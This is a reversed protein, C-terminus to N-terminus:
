PVDKPIGARRIAHGLVAVFVLACRALNVVSNMRRGCKAHDVNGNYRENRVIRGAANGLLSSLGGVLSLFSDANLHTRAAGFLKYSAATHLGSIASFIIMVWMTAFQRSTIDALLSSSAAGGRGTGIVAPMATPIVRGETVSATVPLLGRGAEDRQEDDSVECEVYTEATECDAPTVVKPPVQLLAGVVGVLLYLSGLTRLLQPWRAYVAAPFAGGIPNLGLPKVLSVDCTRRSCFAVVAVIPTFSVRQGVTLKHQSTTTCQHM